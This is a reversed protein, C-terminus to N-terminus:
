NLKFIKLLQTHQLEQMGVFTSVKVLNPIDLQADDLVAYDEIEPHRALWDRIFLARAGMGQTIDLDISWDPHLHSPDIGEEELIKSIREYGINRWSSSIVLKAPSEKLVRLVTKVALPDFAIRGNRQKSADSWYDMPVMPGDFDLFLARTPLQIVM